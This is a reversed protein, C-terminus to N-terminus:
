VLYVYISANTLTACYLGNVTIPEAPSFTIPGAVQTAKFVDRKAKDQLTVAWTANTALVVIASIQVTAGSIEAVTDIILPTKTLDNAM